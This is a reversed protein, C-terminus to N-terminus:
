EFSDSDSDENIFFPERPSPPPTKKAGLLIARAMDKGKGMEWPPEEKTYSYGQVRETSGALGLELAVADARAINSEAPHIFIDEPKSKSRPRTKVSTLPYNHDEQTLLPQSASDYVNRTDKINRPHLKPSSGSWSFSIM